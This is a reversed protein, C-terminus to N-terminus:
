NAKLIQKAISIPESIHRPSGFECIEKIDRHQHFFADALKVEITSAKPHPTSPGKSDAMAQFSEGGPSFESISAISAGVNGTVISPKLKRSKSPLKGISSSLTAILTSLDEMHPNSAFLLVSSFGLVSSDVNPEEADGRSCPHLTAKPLSSLKAFGVSEHFFTELYLAVIQMTPGFLSEKAAGVFMNDLIFRLNSVIRRYQKSSQSVTDWKAMKLFETVWPVVIVTRCQKWADEVIAELSLGLSNLRQLVDASLPPNISKMDLGAGHWNPSFLLYGLFRALLQLNMLLKELNNGSSESNLSVIMAGIRSALHIGFSYNDNAQIFTFFFEQHGPFQHQAEAIPLTASSDIAFRNTACNFRSIQHCLACVEHLGHSSIDKENQNIKLFAYGLFITKRFPFSM